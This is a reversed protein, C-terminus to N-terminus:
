DLALMVKILRILAQAREDTREFSTQLEALSDRWRAQVAAPSALRSMEGPRGQAAALVARIGDLAETLNELDISVELERRARAPMLRTLRALM